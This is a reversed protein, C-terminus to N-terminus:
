NNDQGGDKGVEKLKININFNYCDNNYFVSLIFVDEIEDIKSLGDEFNSISNKDRSIGEISVLNSNFSISNLFVTEPVRTTIEDLLHKNMIDNSDMFDDVQKLKKFKEEFEKIEKEKEQLENTKENSRKIEIQQKLSETELTLKNITFINLFTYVVIGIVFLIAIMFQIFDKNSKKEKKKHYSEFFNLDTM